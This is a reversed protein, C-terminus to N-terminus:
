GETLVVAAAERVSNSDGADVHLLVAVAAAAMGPGAVRTGEASGFGVGTEGENIIGPAATSWSKM